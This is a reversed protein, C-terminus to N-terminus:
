FDRVTVGFIKLIQGMIELNDFIDETSKGFSTRFNGWFHLLTCRFIRLFNKLFM